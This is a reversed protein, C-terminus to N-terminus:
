WPKRGTLWLFLNYIAAPGKHSVANWYELSLNSSTFSAKPIRFAQELPVKELTDMVQM